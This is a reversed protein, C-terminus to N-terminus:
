LTSYKECDTFDALSDEGAWETTRWIDNKSQSCFASNHFAAEREIV